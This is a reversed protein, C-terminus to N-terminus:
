QQEARLLATQPVAGLRVHIASDGETEDVMEADAYVTGLIGGGDVEGILIDLDAIAEEPAAVEPILDNREVQASRRYELM